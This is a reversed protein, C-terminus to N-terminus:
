PSVGGETTRHSIMNLAGAVHLTPGTVMSTGHGAAEESAPVGGSGVENAVNGRVGAHEIRTAVRDRRM